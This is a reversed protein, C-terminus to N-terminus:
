ETEGSTLSPVEFEEEEPEEIGRYEEKARQIQERLENIARFSDSISDCLPKYEAEDPEEDTVYDKYYIKGIKTYNRRIREKETLIELRCKSVFAVYKATKAANHAAESAMEKVSEMSAM